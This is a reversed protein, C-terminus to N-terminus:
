AAADAVRQPQAQAASRHGRLLTLGQWTLPFFEGINWIPRAGRKIFGAVGVQQGGGTNATRAVPICRYLTAPSVGLRHAIQSVIPSETPGQGEATM